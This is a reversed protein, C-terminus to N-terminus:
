APQEPNATLGVVLPEMGLYISRRAMRYHEGHHRLNTQRLGANLHHDILSLANSIVVDSLTSRHKPQPTQNTSVLWDLQGLFAE